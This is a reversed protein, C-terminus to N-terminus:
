LYLLECLYSKPSAELTPPLTTVYTGLRFKLFVIKELPPLRALHGAPANSKCDPRKLGEDQEPWESSKNVTTGHEFEPSCKYFLM